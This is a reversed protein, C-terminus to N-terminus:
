SDDHARSQGGWTAPRRRVQLSGAGEPLCGHLLVDQVAGMIISSAAISPASCRLQQQLLHLAEGALEHPQM